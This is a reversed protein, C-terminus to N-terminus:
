RDLRPDKDLLQDSINSMPLVISGVSPSDDQDAMQRSDESLREYDRTSVDRSSTVIADRQGLGNLIARTRYNRTWTTMCSTQYEYTDIM